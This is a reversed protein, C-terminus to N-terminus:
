PTVKRPHCAPCHPHRTFLRTLRRAALDLWAVGPILHPRYDANM